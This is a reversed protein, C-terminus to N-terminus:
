GFIKRSRKGREFYFLIIQKKTRNKKVRNAKLETIVFWFLGRENSTFYHIKKKNQETKKERLKKSQFVKAFFKSM